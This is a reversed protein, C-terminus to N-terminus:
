FPLAVDVREDVLFAVEVAVLGGFAVEAFDVAAVLFVLADVAALAGPALFDAAGFDFGFAVFAVAFFSAVAM